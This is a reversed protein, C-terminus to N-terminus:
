RAEHALLWRKRELGGAYGTLTGNAGIVRHCPVILAVPNQGNALGAARVAKPRGIAAALQGYTRTEGAPIARLAAWVERQFATGNTRVVLGDLATRDGAFYAAVASRTTEPVAGPELVFAGHYRALLRMMRAEYDEFDLAVVAGGADVVLLVEGVPTSIRDLTFPEPQANNM